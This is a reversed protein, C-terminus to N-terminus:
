EAYKINKLIYDAYPDTISQCTASGTTQRWQREQLWIKCDLEDKTILRATNVNRQLESCIQEFFRNSFFHKRNYEAIDRCAEVLSQQMYDPLTQIRHMEQVIAALREDCDTITDYSENIYGDFTHFGYSRLLRLAGPGAALIFPHGCAIPRLIKETLHIRQDFVTELIVSIATHNFDEVNYVASADSGVPQQDFSGLQVQLKNEKVQEVFSQRYERSGTVDRCYALFLKKTQKPELSNDYEAFRYWDRAIIAHSWWYAGQYQNTAEYKKLEPSNFESHLLIWKKQINTPNTWRLNLNHLKPSFTIGIQQQFQQIFTQTDNTRDLYLDFNLPEQDHCFMVPQATTLWRWDLLESPMEPLRIRKEIPIGRAGNIDSDSRIHLHVDRLDRSGWPYAYMLFLQKKTLQHVFDYLNHTPVSM